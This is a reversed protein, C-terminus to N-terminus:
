AIGLFVGENSFGNKRLLLIGSIGGNNWSFQKMISKLSFASNNLLKKIFM